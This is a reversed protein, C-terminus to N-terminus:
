WRMWGLSTNIVDNKTTFIIHFVSIQQIQPKVSMELTRIHLITFRGRAKLKEFCSIVTNVSNMELWGTISLLDSVCFVNYQLPSSFSTFCHLLDKFLRSFSTFCRKLFLTKLFAKIGVLNLMLYYLFFSNRQCWFWTWLSFIVRIVTM